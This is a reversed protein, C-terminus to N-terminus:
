RPGLEKTKLRMLLLSAKRLLPQIILIMQQISFDEFLTSNLFPLRKDSSETKGVNLRVLPSFDLM